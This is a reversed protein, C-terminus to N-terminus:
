VRRCACSAGPFLGACAPPGHSESQVCWSRQSPPPRPHPGIRTGVYHLIRPLHGIEIDDIEGHFVGDPPEDGFRHLILVSHGPPRGLDWFLHAQLYLPLLLFLAVGGHNYCYTINQAHVEYAKRIAITMATDREEKQKREVELRVKEPVKTAWWTM